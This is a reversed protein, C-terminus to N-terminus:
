YIPNINETKRYHTIGKHHYGRIVTTYTVDRRTILFKGKDNMIGLDYHITTSVNNPLNWLGEIRVWGNNTELYRLSKPRYLLDQGSKMQLAEPKLKSYVMDDKDRSFLKRCRWDSFGTEPDFKLKLLNDDNLIIDHWAQIISRLKANM